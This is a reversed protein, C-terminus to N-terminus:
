GLCHKRVLVATEDPREWWFLHGVGDFTQLQADPILGAIQVGNSYRVMDDANGHLVLTPVDLAPLRASTDHVFASQAQRLVLEVPVVVSLAATMFPEFRSDDATYTPSLNAEFAARVSAIANGTNMAELMRMPGPADLTSGAGGAYTCGLVLRRVRDPRGLALEQAVMGGLSIGFVHATDWGLVDLLAVADAALDATTFQGPVDTSEGIGRHDYAVVDFDQELRSLLPEGWIGHHGAMGQILLLPVGGAGRREYYLTRGGLDALPM